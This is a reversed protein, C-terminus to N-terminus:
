PRETNQHKQLLKLFAANFSVFEGYQVYEAGGISFMDNTMSSLDNSWWSMNHREFTALLDDYYEAMDVWARPSLM